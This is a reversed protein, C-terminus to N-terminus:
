KQQGLVQDINQIYKRSYNAQDVQSNLAIVSSFHKRAEVLLDLGSPGSSASTNLANFKASYLIGLRYQAYLNQPDYSLAGECYKIASDYHKLLYECDCYGFNAQARLEKWIDTQAARKKSGAGILWPMVYYNFKGGAGSAFNSLALYQSYETEATPLDAVTKAGDDYLRLSDALWLHAEAKNPILRVSDRGAKVAQEYAGKRFFAQSLLYAATGNNPDHLTVFNLQRIAEDLDGGDLLGGAYSIRADMDDPEIEVAQKFYQNATDYDNLARYARGTFTAAQNYTPDIQLAAKFEEAAAKYNQEYGKNYLEMGHNFHDLAAKKRVKAILIRISVTTEQGPYVEQDRPGDPMYGERNGQVTHLGPQLGPLRLANAKNVVGVSKGDITVEVGDMNTEIVLTGVKPQPLNSATARGPYYALVADGADSTNQPESTPHQRDATAQAVNYKVYNSLNMPDVIGDHVDDAQGEYGKVLYYTFIGHGGGWLPGEFSVEGAKSASLVFLSNNALGLLEQDLHARDAIAGSHCADAFLVKQKAPINKTLVDGLRSMPYSTSAINNPDIDYPALYSHGDVVFGHGAFYILVNDNPKAVSPLWNELQDKLNAYTAQEEKLVHVNEAPYQGGEKSILVTYVSDADRDSYKLQAKEPLNKYHSIGVVLAYWRPVSPNSPKHIPSKVTPPATDTTTPKNPHDTVLNLDRHQSDTTPPPTQTQQGALACWVGALLVPILKKM